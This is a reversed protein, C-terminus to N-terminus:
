PLTLRQTLRRALLEAHASFARAEDRRLLARLTRATEQPIRPDLADLAAADRLPALAEDARDAERLAIGLGLRCEAWWSAVDICSQYAVVADGARQMGILSRGEGALAAADNPLMIRLASYRALAQPWAKTAAALEADIRLADLSTPDRGRLASATSEAAPGQGSRVQALGIVALWRSQWAEDGTHASMWALAEQPRHLALLTEGIAITNSALRPERVHVARLLELSRAPYGIRRYAEGALSKARPADRSREAAIDLRALAADRQGLRAHCDAALIYLRSVQPARAIVNEYAALADSCRGNAADRAAKVALARPDNALEPRRALAAVIADLRAVDGLRMSDHLAITAADLPAAILLVDEAGVSVLRELANAARPLRNRVTLQTRADRVLIDVHDPPQTVEGVIRMDDAGILRRITRTPFASPEAPEIRLPALAPPAFEDVAHAFKSLARTEAVIRATFEAPTPEVTNVPLALPELWVAPSRAQVAVHAVLAIAGATAIGIVAMTVRRRWVDHRSSM